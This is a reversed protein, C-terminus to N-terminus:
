ILLKYKQISNFQGSITILVSKKAAKKMMKKVQVVNWKFGTLVHLSDDFGTGLFCLDM